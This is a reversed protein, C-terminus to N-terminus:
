QYQEQAKLFDRSVARLFDMSVTGIYKVFGKMINWHGNCIRQYKVVRKIGVTGIDKIFGKISNWHVKCIEQYQEM